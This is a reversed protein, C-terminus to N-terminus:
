SRLRRAGVFALMGGVILMAFGGAVRLTNPLERVETQTLLVAASPEVFLARYAIVGGAAAIAMGVILLIIKM